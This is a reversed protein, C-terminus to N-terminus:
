DIGPQRSITKMQRNGPTRPTNYVEWNRIGRHNLVAQARDIEDETGEAVVLYDGHSVRDSYFKAREEPIGWGILAGGVGGIGAGLGTNFIVNGIITGLAAAPGVGPIALIGLGEILGVIAGAGAGSVAGLKAGEGAYNGSDRHSATGEQPYDGETRARYFADGMDAGAFEHNRRDIDKAVISIQHLPFGVSGLEMLAKEADQHNSFVGIARKHTTLTM